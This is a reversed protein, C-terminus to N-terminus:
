GREFRFAAITFKALGRFGSLCAYCGVTGAAEERRINICGRAGEFLDVRPSSLNFPKSGHAFNASQFEHAIHHTTWRQGEEPVQQQKQQLQEALCVRSYKCPTASWRLTVEPHAAITRQLGAMLEENVKLHLTLLFRIKHDETLWGENVLEALSFFSLRGFETDVTRTSSGSMQKPLGREFRFATISFKALGRFGSLSAYCGFISYDGYAKNVKKRCIKICGQVGEFLDVRPSSLNFLKSDDAFDASQFEHAIHHTTWRQGEEPVQQQLQEALCVRSYQCPPASWCSTVAPHAAITWHLSAMLAEDERLHLTVLLRIQNDATLWGQSILEALTFLSPFICGRDTTLTFNATKRRPAGKGFRFATVTIEAMGRFGSLHVICDINNGDGTEADVTRKVQISGQFAKGIEFIQSSLDISESDISFDEFEHAIHHTTWKEGAVTKIKRLHQLLLVRNYACPVSSWQLEVLQVPLFVCM